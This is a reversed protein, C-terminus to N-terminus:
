RKNPIEVTLLTRPGFVSVVFRLNSQDDWFYEVPEFRNRIQRSVVQGMGLDIKVSCQFCEELYRWLRGQSYRNSKLPLGMMALYRECFREWAHKSVIILDLKPHRIIPDPLLPPFDNRKAFYPLSQEALKGRIVEFQGVVKSYKGHCNRGSVIFSLYDFLVNSGVRGTVYGRIDFSWQAVQKTTPFVLGQPDHIRRLGGIIKWIEEDTFFDLFAQKALGKNLLESEGM